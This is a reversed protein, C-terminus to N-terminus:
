LDLAKRARKMRPDSLMRCCETVNESPIEGKSSRRIERLITLPIRHANQATNKMTEKNLM